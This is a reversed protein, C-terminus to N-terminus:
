RLGSLAEHLNYTMLSLWAILGFYLLSYELRKGPTLTSLNPTENRRAVMQSVALFCVILLLPSPHLYFFCLLVPVGLYWIKRSIAVTIRGGDLPPVPILNFLNLLFGAYAVAMLLSSNLYEALYYCALAALSGSLPGAIGVWAETEADPLADKLAIWAGVFPIFMPLGTNLSRQRAAFYHGLEHFFLMAVIGTAYPWGFLLAYTAVSLLMTGGSLIFKGLTAGKFLLLLLSM